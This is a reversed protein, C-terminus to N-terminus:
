MYRIPLDGYRYLARKLLAVIRPDDLDLVRARIYAQGSNISIDRRELRRILNATRHRGNIIDYNASKGSGRKIILIPAYQGKRYRKLSLRRTRRRFKRSNDEEESGGPLETSGFIVLKKLPFNCLKIHRRAINEVIKTRYSQAPTRMSFNTKFYCNENWILQEHKVRYDRPM